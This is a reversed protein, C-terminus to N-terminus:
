RIFFQFPFTKPVDYGITVRDLLVDCTGADNAVAVFTFTHPGAADVTCTATFAPWLSWTNMLDSVAVRVGDVELAVRGTSIKNEWYRSTVRCAITVVTKPAPTEFAHSIRGPGVGGSAIRLFAAHKNTTGLKALQGPGSFYSDNNCIGSGNGDSPGFTWASLNAALWSADRVSRADQKARDGTPLAKVPEFDGDSVLTPAIHTYPDFPEDPTADFTLPPLARALDAWSAYITRPDAAYADLVARGQASGGRSLTRAVALEILSKTRTGDDTPNNNGDMDHAPVEALTAASWGTLTSSRAVAKELAQYLERSNLDEVARTLMRFHSLKAADGTEGVLRGALERLVPVVRAVRGSKTLAHILYDVPATQRGYNGLGQFNFGASWDAAQVATLLEDVVADAADGVLVRAVALALRHDGNAGAHATALLPRAEAPRALIKELGAFDSTALAAIAASLEADTVEGDSENLVRADLCDAAVLEQQLAAVDIARVDGTPVAAAAALGAAYGQNQVDRQMRIIPMADRTASIGLGTALVGALERPILARYPLDAAFSKGHPRERYMLVDSVSFGHMDYDSTGHMITDRWTRNRLIDGEDVVVDGVIRRRERAGVGPDGVNYRSAKAGARARWAFNSLDGADDTNLFGFDTNFYGNGLVHYATGSGQMAFERGELFQTACGAIQAVVANGTSDVVVSARVVGRTGDPLVVVVGTVPTKGDAGPAGTLVGEVLSGFLVEATAHTVVSRRLWEAKAQSYVWGTAAVGADLQKRTFGRNYGKYYKGIRGDTTVGGMTHLIELGVVRRGKQLAAIAAPAGATGMGVIAVDATALVPLEGGRSSCVANTLVELGRPRDLRERVATAAATTATAGYVLTGAATEDAACTAAARAAAAGVRRGLATGVGPATLKAALARDLDAAPGLVYLGDVDAPQFVGLPVADSSTWASLAARGVIRDPTVFAPVESADAQSVTWIDNRMRQTIANVLRWDGSALPFPATFRYLSVSYSKEATAPTMIADATLSISAVPAPEEAVTYGARDFSLGAKAIIAYTFDVTNGEAVPRLACVRRAVVGAETADVVCRARVVQRGSADAFVVGALRGGDTRVGDCAMLGGLFPVGADQLQRDLVKEYVLPALACAVQEGTHASIEGILMRKAGAARTATLRFRRASTPQKFVFTYSRCEDGYMLGTEVVASQITGQAATYTVGDSSEELAIRAVDFDGATPRYYYYLALDTLPKEGAVTLTWTVTADDYQVSESGANSRAGDTLVTGDPDPKAANPVAPTAYTLSATAPRMALASFVANTLPEDDAPRTLRRPLVVEEALNRRPAALFVSAGAEKAAVAASVGAFTGGVVLVDVDQIVPLDRASEAEDVGLTRLVNPLTVRAAGLANPHVGDPVLKLYEAPALDAALRQWLPAHDVLLYGNEQAVRRYMAFHAELNTRNSLKSGAVAVYPNMTELIIEVSPKAAKVAAIIAKLNSEAAALAEAPTKGANLTDAADNMSFEILVADPEEAVVKAAVNALGTASNKGSLGANVVTALGPWRTDLATRLGDVWWHSQVTLSTGYCVVTQREGAKLKEVFGAAAEAFFATLACFGLLLHKLM